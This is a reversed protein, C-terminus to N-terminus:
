YEILKLTEIFGYDGYTVLYSPDQLLVDDFVEDIDIQEPDCPCNTLLWTKVEESTGHQIINELEGSDWLPSFNDIQATLLAM